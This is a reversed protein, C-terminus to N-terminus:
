FLRLKQELHIVLYILSLAISHRTVVTMAVIDLINDILHDLDELVWDLMGCLSLTTSIVPELCQAPNHM